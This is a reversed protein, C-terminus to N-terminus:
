LTLRLVPSILFFTKNEFPKVTRLVQAIRGEVYLWNFLPLYVKGLLIQNSYQVSFGFPWVSQNRYEFKAYIWDAFESPKHTSLVISQDEPSPVLFYHTFQSPKFLVERVEFYNLGLDFRFYNEPNAKTLWLNYFFTFQGSSRLLPAVKYEELNLENIKKYSFYKTPDVSEEKLSTLPFEMNLHVGFQPHFPLHFDMGAILKGGPGQNLKQSPVWSFITGKNNIGGSIRYAGGLYANILFPIKDSTKSDRNVYLPRKLTIKSSGSSWFVYGIDDTGLSNKLWFGSDGFKLTQEFFSMTFSHTVNTPELYNIIAQAQSATVPVEAPIESYCYDRKGDVWTNPNAFADGGALISLLRESLNVQMESASMSIEGCTLHLLDFPEYDNRRPAALIEINTKNLKAEDYGLIRFAQYIQIQLDTECVKWRPFYKRIEPDITTMSEIIERPNVNTQQTYCSYYAILGLIGILVFLKKM